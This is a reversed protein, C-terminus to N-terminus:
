ANQVYWIFFSIGVAVLAIVAGWISATLWGLTKILSLMNTELKTVRIDTEHSKDTIGTFRDDGSSLRKWVRDFELQCDRRREEMETCGM